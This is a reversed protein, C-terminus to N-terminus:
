ALVAGPRRKIAQLADRGPQFSEAVVRVDDLFLRVFRVLTDDLFNKTIRQRRFEDHDFVAFRGAVKILNRM